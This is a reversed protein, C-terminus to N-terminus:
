AGQAKRGLRLSHEAYQTQPNVKDIDPRFDANADSFKRPWTRLTMGASTEVIAAINYGHGAPVGQPMAEAHAAGATVCLWETGSGSRASESEAEHVHGALHCHVYRRLWNRVEREDALWGGVLPHHSLSLVLHQSDAAPSLGALLETLMREGVRLRGQDRADAALLATNLGLIRIALGRVTLTYAAWACRAAVSEGGDPRAYCSAFARYGAQRALLRALDPSHCVADDFSRSGSRLEEILTKTTQDRDASRAVDHNGPVMVIHAPPIKLSSALADLWSAAHRYEEVVPARNLDGGSFAIDGTVLILDPSPLTGDTVQALVDQSLAALLRQQNYRHSTSGHGFHLDSLHLWSVRPQGAVSSRNAPAQITAPLLARVEKVIELWVKNRSGQECVPGGSRPLIVLHRYRTAQVDISRILIPIVRAGATRRHLAADVLAPYKRELRPSVLVLILEAQTIQERQWDQQNVGPPADQISCVALLDQQVYVALQDELESEYKKDETAALILCRTHM